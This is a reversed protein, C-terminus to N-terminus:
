KTKRADKAARRAVEAAWARSNKANVSSDILKSISTILGAGIALAIIPNAEAEHKLNELFPNM